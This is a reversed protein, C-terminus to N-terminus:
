SLLKNHFTLFQRKRRGNKVTIEIALHPFAVKTMNVGHTRGAITTNEYINAKTNAANHFSILMISSGSHHNANMANVVM